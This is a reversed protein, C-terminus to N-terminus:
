TRNTRRRAPSATFPSDSDAGDVPAVPQKRAAIVQRLRVIYRLQLRRRHEVARRAPGRRLAERAYGHPRGRGALTRRGQAHQPLGRQRRAAEGGPQRGRRQLEGALLGRHDRADEADTTPRGAGPMLAALRGGPQAAVEAAEDYRLTM